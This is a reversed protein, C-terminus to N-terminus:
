NLLKAAAEKHSADLPCKIQATCGLFRGQADLSLIKEVQLQM